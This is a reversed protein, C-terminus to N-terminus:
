HGALVKYTSQLMVRGRAGNGDALTTIRFLPAGNNKETLTNPSFTTFKDRQVYCLFEVIYKVEADLREIKITKYRSSTKWVNLTTDSWFDIRDAASAADFVKCDWESDGNAYLGQFCLGGSCTANFCGTGTCTGLLKERDPPAIALTQEVQVLAAEAAAFATAHDQSGSAIKFESTSSQMSAVGMMTVTALLILSVILAVGTQRNLSNINGMGLPVGNITWSSFLKPMTLQEKFFEAATAFLL